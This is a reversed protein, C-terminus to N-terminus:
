KVIREITVYITEILYLSGIFLAVLIGADFATMPRGGLNALYGRVAEIM